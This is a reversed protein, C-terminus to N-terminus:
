RAGGLAAARRALPALRADGPLLQGLAALQFRLAELDAADDVGETEFATLTEEARVLASEQAAASSLAEFDAQLRTAQSLLKRAPACGADDDVTRELLIVARTLLPAKDVPDAEYADDILDRAADVRLTADGTCTRAQAPSAALATLLLWTSM